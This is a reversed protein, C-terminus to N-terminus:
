ENKELVKVMEEVVPQPRGQRISDVVCTRLHNELIVRDVGKLAARVATSQHIVDVCYEDSEVMRIVKNLHGRAIQLRHLIRRKLSRDRPMGKPM